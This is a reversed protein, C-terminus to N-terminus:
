SAADVNIQLTEINEKIVERYVLILKLVTWM